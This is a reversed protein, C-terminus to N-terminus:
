GGGRRYGESEGIGAAELITTIDGGAAHPLLMVGWPPRQYGETNSACILSYVIESHCAVTQCIFNVMSRRQVCMFYGLGIMVGGGGIVWNNHSAFFNLFLIQNIEM